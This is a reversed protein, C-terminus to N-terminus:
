DSDTSEDDFDDSEYPTSEGSSDDCDVNVYPVVKKVASLLGTKLLVAPDNAPCYNMWLMKLSTGSAAQTLIKEVQPIKLKDLLLSAEKMKNVMKALLQPEVKSLDMSDITVKKLRPATSIARCLTNMSRPPVYGLTPNQENYFHLELEQLNEFARPFSEFSAGSWNSFLSLSTVSSTEEQMERLLLEVDKSRMEGLDLHEIKNLGKAVASRDEGEIFEVRLRKLKNPGQLVCSLTPIPFTTSEIEEMKALFKSLLETDAPFAFPEYMPFTVTKLGTHRLAAELLKRWSAEPGLSADIRLHRANRLREMAMKKLLSNLGRHTFKRVRSNQECKGRYIFKVWSWLAPSSVATNKWHKCVLTATKLDKPALHSFVKELMEEPLMENILPLNKENQKKVVQRPNEKLKRKWCKAVEM